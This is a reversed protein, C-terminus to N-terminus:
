IVYPMPLPVIFKNQYGLRERFFRIIEDKFNWAGILIYDPELAMLAEPSVVPMRVGPCLLGQKRPNADGMARLLQPTIGCYNLMTMAKAAAGYGVVCRGEAELGTLLTRLAARQAPVAEAFRRWGSPRHLDILEEFDLASQANAPVDADEHAVEIVFSGGNMRCYGVETLKMGYRRMLADVAHVTLYSLHEHFITDYQVEDRLMFAYPSELVMRGNPALLHKMGAVLDQLESVHGLVNRAVIVDARGRTSVIQEAVARGFFARISPLGREAAEAALNSPDVGLVDFGVQRYHELFFGDNSAIEVLFPSQDARPKYRERLRESFSRAYAKTTESTGIVWLFSSFLKHRDIAERIQVLGCAECFVLTLQERVQDDTDTPLRVFANALPLQGMDLVLSTRTSLCGRCAFPAEAGPQGKSEAHAPHQNSM